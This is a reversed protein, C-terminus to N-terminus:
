STSRWAPASAITTRRVTAAVPGPAHQKQHVRLRDRQRGLVDLQELEQGRLRAARELRGVGDGVQVLPRRLVREGLQPV